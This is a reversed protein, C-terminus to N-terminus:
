IINQKTEKGGKTKEITAVLAAAADSRWGVELEDVETLEWWAPAWDVCPLVLRIDLAKAPKPVPELLGLDAAPGKPAATTAAAWACAADSALCCCWEIADITLLKGEEPVVFVIGLSM